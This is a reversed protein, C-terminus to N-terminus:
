CTLQGFGGSFSDGDLGQLVLLLAWHLCSDALQLGVVSEDVVWDSVAQYEDFRWWLVIILEILIMNPLAMINLIDAILSLSM